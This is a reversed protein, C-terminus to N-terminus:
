SSWGFSSSIPQTHPVFPSTLRAYM